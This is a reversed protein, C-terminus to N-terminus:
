KCVFKAMIRTEERMKVKILFIPWLRVYGMFNHCDLPFNAYQNEENNHKM